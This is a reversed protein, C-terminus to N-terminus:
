VKVRHPEWQAKGKEIGLQNVIDAAVWGVIGVYTPFSLPIRALEEVRLGAAMATSVEEDEVMLIRPAVEFLSVQAGFAQFISAAQVGTADAGM